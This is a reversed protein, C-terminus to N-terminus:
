RERFCVDQFHKPIFVVFGLADFCNTERDSIRSQFLFGFVFRMFASSQKYFFQHILFEVTFAKSSLATATPASMAAASASPLAAVVASPQGGLSIPPPLLIFGRIRLTRFFRLVLVEFKFIEAM